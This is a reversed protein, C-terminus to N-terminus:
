IRCLAESRHDMTVDMIRSSASSSNSPRLITSVWCRMNYTMEVVLSLNTHDLSVSTAVQPGLDFIGPVGQRGKEGDRRLVEPQITLIALFCFGQIENAQKVQLRDKQDLPSGPTVIDLRGVREKSAGTLQQGPDVLGQDAPLVQGLHAKNRQCPSDTSISRGM